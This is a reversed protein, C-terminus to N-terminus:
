QTECALWEGLQEREEATPTAGSPPMIENNSDAGFAAYEDIHDAEALIGELTDFDHAEPAGDRAAGMRESSHCRTCYAAMFPVAFNEYTLTSDPPCTAGSPAGDDGHEHGADGHEHGADSDGTDCAALVFVLCPILTWKM